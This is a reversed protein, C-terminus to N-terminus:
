NRVMSILLLIFFVVGCMLAAYTMWDKSSGKPSQKLMKKASPLIFLFMMILFGAQALRFFDFSEPVKKERSPRESYTMITKHQRFDGWDEEFSAVISGSNSNVEFFIPVMKM